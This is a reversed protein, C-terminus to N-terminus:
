VLPREVDIGASPEPPPSPAPTPTTSRMDFSLDPDSLAALCARLETIKSDLEQKKKINDEQGAQMAAWM